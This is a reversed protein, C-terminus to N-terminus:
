SHSTGFIYTYTYTYSYSYTYMYKSTYTHRHTSGCYTMFLHQKLSPLCAGFTRWLINSRSYLSRLQRNIDRNDSLDDSVIYVIKIRVGNLYNSNVSKIM